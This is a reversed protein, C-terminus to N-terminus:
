KGKVLFVGALLDVLESFKVDLLEVGVLVAAVEFLGNENVQFFGDRWFKNGIELVIVAVELGRHFGNQIVHLFM